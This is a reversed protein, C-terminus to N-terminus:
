VKLKLSQLWEFRFLNNNYHKDFPLIRIENSKLNIIRKRNICGIEGM